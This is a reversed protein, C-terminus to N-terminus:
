LKKNISYLDNNYLGPGPTGSGVIKSMQNRIRNELTMLRENDKENSKPAFSSTYHQQKSYNRGASSEKSAVDNVTEETM